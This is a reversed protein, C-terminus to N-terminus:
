DAFSVRAYNDISYEPEYIHPTSSLIGRIALCCPKASPLILIEDSNDRSKLVIGSEVNTGSEHVILKSPVIKSNFHSDLDVVNASSLSASVLSFRLVGVERREAVDHMESVVEVGTGDSRWLTLCIPSGYSEFEM